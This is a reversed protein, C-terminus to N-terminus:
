EGLLGAKISPKLPIAGLWPSHIIEAVRPDDSAAILKENLFLKTEGNRVLMSFLDGETFDPTNALIWNAANKSSEDQGIHALGKKWGLVSYRRAIDRVYQFELLRQGDSKRYFSAQYIDMGLPGIEVLEKGVFSFGQTNLDSAYIKTASFIWILILVLARIVM